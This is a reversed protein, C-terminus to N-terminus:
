QKDIEGNSEKVNVNEIINNYEEDSIRGNKKMASIEKLKFGTEEESSPKEIIELQQKKLKNVIFEMLGGFFILILGLLVLVIIIVGNEDMHVMNWTNDWDFPEDAVSFLIYLFVLIMFLYYGLMGYFTYSQKNKDVLSGKVLDFFNISFFAKGTIIARVLSYSFGLIAVICSITIVKNM